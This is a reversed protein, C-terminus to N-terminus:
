DIVIRADLRIVQETEYASSLAGSSLNIVTVLDNHFGNIREVVMYLTPNNVNPDNNYRFVEGPHLNKIVTSPTKGRQIRM